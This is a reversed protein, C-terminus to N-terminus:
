CCRSIRQWKEDLRFAFYQARTMVPEEAHCRAMHDLYREYADDGSVQRLFAWAYRLVRRVAGFAARAPTEAERPGPAMELIRPAQVVIREPRPPCSM